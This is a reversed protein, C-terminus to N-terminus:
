LSTRNAIALEVLLAAAAGALLWWWVRQRNEAVESSMPVASAALVGTGPANTSELTALQAANPWPALDSEEPPTNVAFVKRAGGGSYEYLGPAVPRVSGNVTKEKLPV